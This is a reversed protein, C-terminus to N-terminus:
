RCFTTLIIECIKKIRMYVLKPHMQTGVVCIRICVHDEMSQFRDPQGHQWPCNQMKSVNRTGAFSNKRIYTTEHNCISIWHRLKQKCVAWTFYFKLEEKHLLINGKINKLFSWADLDKVFVVVATRHLSRLHERHGFLPHVIIATHFRFIPKPLLNLQRRHGFVVCSYDNFAFSMLGFTAHAEVGNAKTGVL